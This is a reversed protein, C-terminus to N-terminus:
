FYILTIGRLVLFMISPFLSFNSNKFNLNLFLNLLM